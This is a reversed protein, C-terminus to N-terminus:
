RYRALALLKMWTVPIEVEDAKRDDVFLFLAFWRKGRPLNFLNQGPRLATILDQERQEGSGSKTYTFCEPQSETFM